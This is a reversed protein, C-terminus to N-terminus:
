TATNTPFCRNTIISHQLLFFYAFATQLNQPINDIVLEIKSKIKPQKISTKANEKAHMLFYKIFCLITSNLNAYKLGYVKRADYILAVLLSCPFIPFQNQINIIEKTEIKSKPSDSNITSISEYFNYIYHM